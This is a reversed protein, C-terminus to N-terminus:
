FYKKLLLDTIGSAVCAIGGIAFIAMQRLTKLTIKEHVNAKQAPSIDKNNNVAQHLKDAKYGIFVPAVLSILGLGFKFKTQLPIAHSSPAVLTQGCLFLLPIFLVKKM